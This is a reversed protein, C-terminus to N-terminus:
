RNDIHTTYGVSCEEAGDMAAPQSWSPFDRGVLNRLAAIRPALQQSLYERVSALDYQSRDISKFAAAEICREIRQPVHGKWRQWRWGRLFQVLPGSFRRSQRLDRERVNHRQSTDIEFGEDVGLWRFLRAFTKRPDAELEELTILHVRDEGFRRLYPEIQWAYDSRALYDDRERLARGPPLSERGSAVFHWYHSIAREVPNRVLYVIRARPNFAYIREECFPIWHRATYSVSSEGAYAADGADAFLRLYWSDGPEPLQHGQGWMGYATRHPAFFQPEKFRSMFIQPHQNIYEHLSSTGSKMAGVIFLNPLTRM